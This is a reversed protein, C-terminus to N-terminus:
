ASSLRGSMLAVRAVTNRAILIHFPMIVTLYIRGGLNHTRVWTALSVRGERAMISVRFDLHRDNFGAIIEEDTEIEVPFVGLRSESPPGDTRLGFPSTLINRIAILGMTWDPWDTIIEGAERVVLDSAVSYCDVFDGDALRGHLLSTEPLASEQVKSGPM